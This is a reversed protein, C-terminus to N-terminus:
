VAKVSKSRPEKALTVQFELGLNMREIFLELQDLLVPIEQSAEIITQENRDTM